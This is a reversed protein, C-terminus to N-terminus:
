NKVLLYSIASVPNLSMGGMAWASNAGGTATWAMTVSSAGVADGGACRRNADANAQGDWQGTVGAGPILPAGPLTWALSSFALEGIASSIVLSPLGASTGGAATVNHYPTTQDVGKYCAAGGAADGVSVSFTVTITNAGVAPNILGWGTSFVGLPNADLQSWIQSLSQSGYTVSTIDPTPDATSDFVGVVLFTHDSSVVTHSWAMSSAGQVGTAVSNSDRAIGGGGGSGPAFSAIISTLTDAGASTITLSTSGAPHILTNSDGLLAKNSDLAQRLTTGSGAAISSTFESLSM